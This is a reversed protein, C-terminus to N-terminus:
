LRRRATRGPGARLRIGSRGGARRGRPCTAIGALPGLLAWGRSSRMWPTEATTLAQSVGRGQPPWIINGACAPEYSVPPRFEQPVQTYHREAPYQYGTWVRGAQFQWLAITCAAAIGVIPAPTDPPAFAGACLFRRRYCALITNRTYSHRFGFELM